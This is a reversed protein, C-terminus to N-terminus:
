FNRRWWGAPDTQGDASPQNEKAFDVVRAHGGVFLVLTKGLLSTTANDKIMSDYIPNSHSLGGWVYAGEHVPLYVGTYLLPRDSVERLKVQTVSDIEWPPPAPEGPVQAKPPFLGDNLTYSRTTQGVSRGAAVALPKTKKTWLTSNMMRMAADAGGAYDDVETSGSRLIDAASVTNRESIMAALAASYSRMKGTDRAMEAKTLMSGALPAVAAVLVAVIVISSLLEVLSFACVSRSSIKVADARQWWSEAKCVRLINM